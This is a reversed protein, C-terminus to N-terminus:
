EVVIRGSRAASGAEIEYFYVGPTLREIVATHDGAGGIAISSYSGLQGAANVTEIPVNHWGDASPHSHPHHPYDRGM